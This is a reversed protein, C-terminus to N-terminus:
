RLVNPSWGLVMALSAPASAPIMPPSPTNAYRANAVVVPPHRHPPVPSLARSPRRPRAFRRPHSPCLGPSVILAHPRASLTRPTRTSTDSHSTADGGRSPLPTLPALRQRASPSFNSVATVDSTARREESGVTTRNSFDDNTPIPVQSTLPPRVSRAGRVGGSAARDREFARPDGRAGHNVVDVAAGDGGRLARRGRRSGDRSNRGFPVHRLVVLGDDLVEPRGDRLRVRVALLRALRGLLLLGVDLVGADAAEAPHRLLGSAREARGDVDGRELLHARARGGEGERVRPNARTRAVVRFGEGDGGFGESASAAHDGGAGRGM